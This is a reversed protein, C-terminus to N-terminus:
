GNIKRVKLQKTISKKSYNRVGTCIFTISTEFTFLEAVSSHCYCWCLSHCDRSLNKKTSAVSGGMSAPNKRPSVWKKELIIM